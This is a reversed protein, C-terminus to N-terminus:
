GHNIRLFLCFRRMIYAGGEFM